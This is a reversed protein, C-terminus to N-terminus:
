KTATPTTAPATVGTAQTTAAAATGPQTAAAPLPPVVSTEILPQAQLSPLAELKKRAYQRFMESVNADNSVAQYHDHAAKFDRQNEAITALGLRALVVNNPQDTYKEIVENYAAVAEKYAEERNPQTSLSPQTAAEPIPPVVALALNLDGRLLTAQGLQHKDTLRETAQSLKLRGDGYYSQVNNLFRADLPPPEFQANPMAGRLQQVDQQAEALLEAAEAVQQHSRQVRSVIFAAVVAVAALAMAARGLWVRGLNPLQVIKTALANQQLEHRREAKM